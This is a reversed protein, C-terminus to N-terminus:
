SADESALGRAYDDLGEDALDRDEAAFESYLAALQAENLDEIRDLTFTRRIIETAVERKETEPLLDFSDLIQRSNTSM